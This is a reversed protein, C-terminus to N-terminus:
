EWDFRIGLYRSLKENYPKYKEILQDRIKKDLKKYNGKNYVKFHRYNHNDLSLFNFIKQLTKKPYKYFTESTIILFQKMPFYKFWRMIQYIYLGRNFYSFNSRYDMNQFFSKEEGKLRETEQKLADHFSLREIGKDRSFNYHSYARDVPNRLLFILKIEPIMQYVRYPTYPHYSYTPTADFTLFKRRLIIKYFFALFKTPFHFRYDKEYGTFMRNFYHVEKDLAPHISHHEILYYFLSTTGCRLGGLILFNPLVRIWSTIKRIFKDYLKNKLYTRILIRTKPFKSLLNLLKNFM